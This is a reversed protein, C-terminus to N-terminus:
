RAFRLRLDGLGFRGPAPLGAEIVADSFPTRPVLDVPPREAPPVAEVVGEALIHVQAVSVLPVRMVREAMRAFVLHAAVPARVILPRRGSVRAVRRVADRFTMEDPGLVEVTRRALRPDGIAAAELLRVVDAVAVPRISRERLGVLPFFPFTHVAHGLHDLM